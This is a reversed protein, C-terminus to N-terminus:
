NWALAIVVNSLALLGGAQLYRRSRGAVATDAHRQAASVALVTLLLATIVLKVAIKTFDLPLDVTLRIGVLAIGSAAAVAAGLVTPRMRRPRSSALQLLCGILVAAVATLHLALILLRTLELATM